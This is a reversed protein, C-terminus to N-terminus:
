ELNYHFLAKVLLSDKSLLFKLDKGGRARQILSTAKGRRNFKGQSCGEVNERKNCPRSPTLTDTKREPDFYKRENIENSNKYLSFAKLRKQGGRKGSTARNKEWGL